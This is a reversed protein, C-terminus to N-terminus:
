RRRRSVASGGRKKQSTSQHPPTASGEEARIAQLFDTVALDLADTACAQILRLTASPMREDGRGQADILFQWVDARQRWRPYVWTARSQALPFLGSLPTTQLLQKENFTTGFLARTFAPLVHEGHWAVLFFSHALVVRDGSAIWFEDAAARQGQPTQREACRRSTADASRAAALCVSSVGIEICDSVSLRRFSPVLEAPLPFQHPRERATTALTDLFSSNFSAISDLVLQHPSHVAFRRSDSRTM